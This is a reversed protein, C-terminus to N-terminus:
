PKPVSCEDLAIQVMLSAALVNLLESRLLVGWGTITAFYSDLLVMINDKDNNDRKTVVVPHPPGRLESVQESSRPGRGAALSGCAPDKGLTQFVRKWLLLPEIGKERVYM